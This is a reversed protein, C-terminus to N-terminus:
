GGSDDHVKTVTATVTTGVRERWARRWCGWSTWSCSTLMAARSGGGRAPDVATVTTKYICALRRVGYLTCSVVYLGRIPFTDVVFEACVCYKTHSLQLHYTYSSQPVLLRGASRHYWLTRDHCVLLSGVSPTTRGLDGHVFEKVYTGASTTVFLHFYHSNIREVRLEHVTKTRTMM